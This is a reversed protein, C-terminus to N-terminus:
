FLYFCVNQFFLLLLIMSHIQLNLFHLHNKVFSDNIVLFISRFLLWFYLFFHDGGQPNHNQGQFIFNYCFFALYIYCIKARFKRSFVKLLFIAFLLFYIILIFSHFFIFYFTFFRRTRLNPNQHHILSHNLGQLM